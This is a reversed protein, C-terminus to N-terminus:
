DLMIVGLIVSFLVVAITAVTATAYSWWETSTLLSMVYFYAYVMGVWILFALARITLDIM